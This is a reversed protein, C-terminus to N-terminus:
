SGRYTSYGYPALLLPLHFHAGREPVEFVIRVEPYFAPTNQQAFYAATEFSIRYRGAAIEPPSLSRLRGDADTKGQGILVWGGDPSCLELTVEVGAAPKGQATDLVHTTIM